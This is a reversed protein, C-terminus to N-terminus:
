QSLSNIVGMSIHELVNIATEYELTPINDYVM